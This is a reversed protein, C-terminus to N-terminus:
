APFVPAVGTRNELGKYGMAPAVATTLQNSELGTLVRNSDTFLPWTENTCLFCMPATM